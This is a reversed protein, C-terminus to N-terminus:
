AKTKSGNTQIADDDNQSFVHPSYDGAVLLSGAGNRDTTSNQRLCTHEMAGEEPQHRKPTVVKPRALHSVNSPSCVKSVNDFHFHVVLAFTSEGTSVRHIRAVINHM